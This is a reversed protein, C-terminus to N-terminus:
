PYDVIYKNKILEQYTIDKRTLDYNNRILEWDAQSQPLSKFFYISLKGTPLESFIKKWDPDAESIITSNKANLIGIDLPKIQPLITDPYHYNKYNDTKWYSFWFYIEKNTNNKIGLPEGEYKDCCSSSSFVSFLIFATISTIINRM